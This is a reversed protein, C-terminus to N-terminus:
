MHEMRLVNILCEPIESFWSQDMLATTAERSLCHTAENGERRVFALRWHQFSQLESKIDAVIVSLCSGDLEGSHVANIVVQADGEFIVRDMGTNKCFRIAMLAARAETMTPELLGRETKRQATIIRGWEDWVVVGLGMWGKDKALSADWNAKVWVTDPPQWKINRGINEEPAHAIHMEGSDTAEVFEVMATKMRRVLDNPHMMHGGHVVENRRMWLRRAIGVFQKIEEPDYFLFVCEKAM